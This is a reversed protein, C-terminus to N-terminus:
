LLSAIMVAIMSMMPRSIRSLRPLGVTSTSTSRSSPLKPRAATGDAGRGARMFGDFQAIAALAVEALADFLSDFGDVALDISAM